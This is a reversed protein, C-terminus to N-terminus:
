ISTNLYNSKSSLTKGQCTFLASSKTAEMRATTDEMAVTARGISGHNPSVCNNEKQLLYTFSVSKGEKWYRLKKQIQVRSPSISSVHGRM